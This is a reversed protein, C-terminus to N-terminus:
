VYGKKTSNYWVIEEVRYNKIYVEMMMLMFGMVSYGIMCMDNMKMKFIVFYLVMEVWRKVKEKEMRIDLDVRGTENIDWIFFGFKFMINDVLVM